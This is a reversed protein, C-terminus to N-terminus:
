RRHREVNGVLGGPSPVSGCRRSQRRERWSRFPLLFLDLYAAAYAPFASAFVQIKQAEFFGSSTMCALAAM